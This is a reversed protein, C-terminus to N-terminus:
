LATEELVIPGARGRGPLGLSAVSVLGGSVALVGFLTPARTALPLATVAVGALISGLMGGFYRSTSVVGSALAVHRPPVADVAAVRTAPFTFSVGIGITLLSALLPALSGREVVAGTALAGAAMLVGGAAVPWRAGFRDVLWGTVPGLVVLSASLAFLAVGVSASSAPDSILLAPIAILTAYLVTNGFWMTANAATFAAIRFLAIPLAPDPQALEFRVFLVVGAITAAAIAITAPDSLSRGLGTLVWAVSVLLMGLAVVGTLDFRARVRPEDEPVASWAFLLALAVFPINVYFLLRWDIPALLGGILPGVSAAAGNLASVTGFYVGARDGAANRLLGLGNPVVLAAAVAQQVRFFVLPLLGPSLAAGISALGFYVLAGLMLRRRGFRDGIRGGIPQLAAMAILYTTVLWSVGAIDVQTDRAIAPLAVVLMTTNLPVLVNALAVSLILRANAGM